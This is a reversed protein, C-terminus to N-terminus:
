AARVEALFREVEGRLGDAEGSLTTAATLVHGSAEGAQGAAETVGAITASVQETGAAAEQVNRAIERTAAGQEETATAIATATRSIEAITGRISEIATVTARTAGQMAGIQAGIEETARATQGALAKVESAVVAFGKGAEGARAAEITANLALLNTQAAINNILDVVQGIKQAAEALARVQDTVAGAETVAKGTIETAQGVQRSIEAISASLEETAAAVTQVNGSTQGAAAAVGGARRAAEEATAAMARATAQMDVAAHAVTGLRAAAAADFMRALATLREARARETEGRTAAEARLREAAIAADKFVAVSAAMTGIEDGRGLGPIPTDHEGRALREMAARLAALPRTISITTLFAVAACGLLTAAVILWSVLITRSRAVQSAAALSDADAAAADIMTTTTRLAAPFATPNKQHFLTAARGLHDAGALGIVRSTMAVYAGVQARLDRVDRRPGPYAAAANTLALAVSKRRAVLIDAGAAGGMAATRAQQNLQMLRYRIEALNHSAVYPHHYLSDTAAATRGVDRNALIGLGALAVLALAFGGAIRAGVPLRAFWGFGTSAPAPM